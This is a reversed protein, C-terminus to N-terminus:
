QGWVLKDGLAWGAGAGAGPKLSGPQPSCVREAWELWGWTGDRERGRLSEQGKGGDVGM